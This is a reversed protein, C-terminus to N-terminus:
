FCTGAPFIQVPKEPILTDSGDGPVEGYGSAYRIDKEDKPLFCTWVSGDELVSVFFNRACCMQVTHSLVYNGNQTASFYQSVDEVEDAPTPNEIEDDLLDYVYRSRYLDNEKTIYDIERWGARCDSVNRNILVPKLFSIREADPTDSNGLVDVDQITYYFTEGCAYLDGDKTLIVAVPATCGLTDSDDGISFKQVNRMILVPAASETGFYYLEGKKNLVLTEAGSTDAYIKGDVPDWRYEYDHIDVILEPPTSVSVNLSCGQLLLASLATTLICIRIFIHKMTESFATTIEGM